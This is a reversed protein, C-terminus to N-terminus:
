NRHFKIIMLRNSNKNNLLSSSCTILDIKLYEYLFFNDHCITIGVGVRPINLENQNGNVSSIWENTIPDVIEISTLSTVGNSGGIIFIKNDYLVAGYGRRNERM